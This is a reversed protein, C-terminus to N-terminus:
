KIIRLSSTQIKEARKVQIIYFGTFLRDTEINIINEGKSVAIDSYNLKEDGRADFISIYCFGDSDSNFQLNIDNAAPNPYITIDNSELRDKDLEVGIPISNMMCPTGMDIYSSQWNAGINNDRDPSILEITRSTRDSGSPWPIDNTYAVSDVINGFVDYLRIQDSKGIGFEFPGLVDCAGRYYKRYEEPNESVVLHAYGEIKTNDPFIFINDDNEDKFTYGTLSVVDKNPNYLEFWDKCDKDDAPRYMIENIVLPILETNNAFQAELEISETLTVIIKRNRGFEQKNWGLFDEESGGILEVEIPVDHFYLMSYYSSDSYLSNIRFKVSQNNSTLTLYSVGSLEFIEIFDEFFRWPRNEAYEIMSPYNAERYKMCGERLAKQRPVEKEIISFTSDILHKINNVLFISNLLDHTRNLFINRFYENELIRSTM